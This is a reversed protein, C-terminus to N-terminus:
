AILTDISTKNTVTAGSITGGTVTLTQVDANAWAGTYNITVSGVGNVMTVTSGGGDIASVGNGATTEAVAIALTGNYLIADDNSDKLTIAVVRSFGDGAIATTVAAASSGLTAPSCALIIDGGLIAKINNTQKNLIATLREQEDTADDMGVGFINYSNGM